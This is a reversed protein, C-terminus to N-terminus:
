DFMTLRVLRKLTDSLFQYDHSVADVLLNIHTQITLAHQFLQTPFKFPTLAVSVNTLTLDDLKSSSRKLIGQLLAFDRISEIAKSDKWWEM